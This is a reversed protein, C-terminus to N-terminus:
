VVGFYDGLVAVLVVFVRELAVVGYTITATVEGDCTIFGVHGFIIILALKFVLIRLILDISTSQHSPLILLIINNKSKIIPLPLSDVFIIIYIFFCLRIMLDTLFLYM